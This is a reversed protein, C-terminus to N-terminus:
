LVHDDASLELKRCIRDLKATSAEELTMDAREFVASSYMMTKDLWLSFFDNGLDYHAAINRRSGSRTNRNIWHLAKRFPLAFRALGGDMGDLVERNQLLVQVTGTLDDTSWYSQIYAEAAGVSGGFAVASYFEPNAVTITVHLGDEDTGFDRRELEDILTLRGFSLGSLRSHLLKRGIRDLIRYSGAQKQLSQESLINEKNM